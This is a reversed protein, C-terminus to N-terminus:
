NQYGDDDASMLCESVKPEKILIFTPRQCLQFISHHSAALPNLFGILNVNLLVQNVEIGLAHSGSCNVEHKWVETKKETFYSYHLCKFFFCAWLELLIGSQFCM